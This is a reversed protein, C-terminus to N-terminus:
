VNILTLFLHYLWCTDAIVRFFAASVTICCWMVNSKCKLHKTDMQKIWRNATDNHFSTVTQQLNRQSKTHDNELIIGLTITFASPIMLLSVYYLAVIAMKSLLLKLHGQALCKVRLLKSILVLQSHTHQLVNRNTHLHSSPFRFCKFSPQLHWVSLATTAIDPCIKLFIQHSKSIPPVTTVWSRVISFFFVRPSFGSKSLASDYIGIYLSHVPIRSNCDTIIYHQLRYYYINFM